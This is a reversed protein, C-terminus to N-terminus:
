RTVPTCLQQVPCGTSRSESTAARCRRLSCSVLSRPGLAYSIRNMGSSGGRHGTDPPSVGQVRDLGLRPSTTTVHPDVETSRLKVMM